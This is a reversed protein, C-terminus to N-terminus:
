KKKRKYKPTYKPIKSEPLRLVTMVDDAFYFVQDSGPRRPVLGALEWRALTTKSIGLNTLIQKQTYVTGPVLVPHPNM